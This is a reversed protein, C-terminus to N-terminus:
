IHILSLLVSLRAGGYAVRVARLRLDGDVDEVVGATSVVRSVLCLAELGLFELDGLYSVDAIIDEDDGHIYDKGKIEM